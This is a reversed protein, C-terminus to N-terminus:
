KIIAFPSNNDTKCNFTVLYETTEESMNVIFARGTQFKNGAIYEKLSPHHNKFLYSKDWNVIVNKGKLKRVSYTEEWFNKFMNFTESKISDFIPKSKKPHTLGTKKGILLLNGDIRKLIVKFGNQEFIKILSKETFVQPHLIFFSEIFLDEFSKNPVNVIIIGDDVLLYSM